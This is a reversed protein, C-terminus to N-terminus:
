DEMLAAQLRQIEAAKDVPSHRSSTAPASMRTKRVPLLPAESAKGEGGLEIRGANGFGDYAEAMKTARSKNSDIRRSETRVASVKAKTHGLNEDGADTVRASESVRRAVCVVDGTRVTRAPQGNLPPLDFSRADASILVADGGTELPDFHAMVQLKPIPIFILATHDFYIEESGGTKTFRCKLPPKAPIKLLRADRAFIWGMDAPPQVLPAASIAADWLEDPTGKQRGDMPERNATAMIEQIKDAMQTQSPLYERPDLTGASCRNYIKWEKEGERARGLNGPLEEMLNQLVNFRGEIPKTKPSWSRTAAVGLRSLGGVRMEEDAGVLEIKQGHIHKGTWHGGEHIIENRPMGISRFIRGYEAWIDNAQYSEGNRAILAFHIFKFSALDMCALLQGRTVKVGYRRSTECDRAPWPTWWAFNVTMDDFVFADGPLDPTEIGDKVKVNKRPTSIHKLRFSKPSNSYDQVAQAVRIQRRLVSPIDHKRKLSMILSAVEGQIEGAMCALRLAMVQSVGGKVRAQVAVAEEETLLAVPPRGIRKGKVVAEIDGGNERLRQLWRAITPLPTGLKEKIAALSDGCGQLELAATIIRRRQHEKGLSKKM